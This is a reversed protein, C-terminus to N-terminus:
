EENINKVSFKRIIGIIGSGSFLIIAGVVYITASKKIDAKDSPASSIYKIALVILMIVATGLAVVQVVTLLAGVINLMSKGAGSKDEAGDVITSVNITSYGTATVINNISSIFLILLLMIVFRKLIKKNM